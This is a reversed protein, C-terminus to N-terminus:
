KYCGITSDRGKILEPLFKLTWMLVFTCASLQIFLLVAGGITKAWVPLKEYKEKKLITPVLHAFISYTARLTFILLYLYLIIFSIDRIFILIPDNFKEGAYILASLIILWKIFDFWDSVFKRINSYLEKHKGKTTAQVWYYILVLGLIGATIGVDVMPLGVRREKQVRGPKTTPIAPQHEAPASSGPRRLIFIEDDKPERLGASTRM